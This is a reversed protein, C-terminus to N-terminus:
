VYRSAAIGLVDGNLDVRHRMGVRWRLAMAM